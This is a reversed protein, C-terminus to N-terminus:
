PEELIRKNDNVGEDEDLHVKNNGHKQVCNEVHM